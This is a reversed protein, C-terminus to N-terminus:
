ERGVGTWIAKLNSVGKVAVVAGPQLGSVPVSDGLASGIQVPVAHFNHEGARVFVVTRQNHTVIATLPLRTQAAPLALEASLAQGPRLKDAGSTLLARLLVTQSNGAVAQGVTILKGVAGGARVTMGERAGIALEANVQIELWLPSLRGIRFLPAALDVRQGIAADQELIVGDIPSKLLLTANGEANGGALALAQRREGAAAEAQTAAAQSAQLRAAPILGEQFLIEDRKLTARTLETQAATQRLDRRLELAEKSALQALAQGARVKMGPAVLVAEILGPLPASVVRLQAPPVVVQAPLGGQTAIGGAELTLTEIGLQQQQVPTLPLTDTDKGASAPLVITLLLATLLFILFHARM